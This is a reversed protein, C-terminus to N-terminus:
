SWATSRSSRTSEPRSMTMPHEYAAAIMLSLRVQITALAALDALVSACVAAAAAGGTVATSLESMSLVLGAGAGEARARILQSKILRDVHKEVDFDEAARLKQVQEEIDRGTTEVAHRM